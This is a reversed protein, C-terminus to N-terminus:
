PIWGLRRLSQELEDRSCTDRQVDVINGSADVYVRMPVSDVYFFLAFKDMGDRDINVEVVDVSGAHAQQIERIWPEMIQCPLCFDRTFDILMPRVPASDSSASIQPYSSSDRHHRTEPTTSLAGESCSIFAIVFFLQGFRQAKHLVSAYHESNPGASTSTHM